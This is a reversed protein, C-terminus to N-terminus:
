GLFKARRQKKGNCNGRKIFVGIKMKELNMLDNFSFSIKIEPQVSKHCLSDFIYLFYNLACTKFHCEEQCSLM